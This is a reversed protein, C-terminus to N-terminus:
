DSTTIRGALRWRGLSVTEPVEWRAEFEGGAGLETSGLVVGRDLERSGVPMLVVEVVEGAEAGAARGRVRLTNGRYVEGEAGLIEVDAPRDPEFDGPLESEGGELAEPGSDPEEAREAGAEDTQENLQAMERRYSEPRPFEPDHIGDHIGGGHNSARVEEAAGGLDIRRWGQGPWDVEVFAHADNYVYRTEIGLAMASIMFTLGRHRCVGLRRRSIEVYRDELDEVEMPRSEFSRHYEVLRDLAESPSHTDRGVDIAEHVRAARALVEDDLRERAEFDDWTVSDDIAGDFYRREVALEMNIRVLQDRDGIVYFNDAQDRRFRLQVDPETQVSLVQQDPSVSPLRFHINPELRVLFSGWFREQGERLRGGVELTEFQRPGLLASYVGDSTRRVQDQVGGRKFPIVSPEFSAQYELQDVSDTQEDLETPGARPGLDGHPQDLDGPGTPGDPTWIWEGARPSLWMGPAAGPETEPREARRVAQGDGEPEAARSRSSDGDTSWEDAEFYRHLVRDGDRSEQTWVPITGVTVAAIAAVGLAVRRNTRKM